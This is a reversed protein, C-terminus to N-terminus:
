WKNYAHKSSIFNIEITLQIKWEEQTKHDNIIDRLYQKIMDLYEKVSLIKEKDGNSEYEIYGNNFVNSVRVPVYYDEESEYM